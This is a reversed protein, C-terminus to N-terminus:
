LYRHFSTPRHYSKRIDHTLEPVGTVVCVPDLLFPQEAAAHQCTDPIILRYRGVGDVRDAAQAM